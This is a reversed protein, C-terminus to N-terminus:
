VIADQRYRRGIAAAQVRSLDFALVSPEAPWGLGRGTGEIFDIGACQLERRLTRDRLRNEGPSTVTSFPSCATIFACSPARLRALLRDVALSRHGVRITVSFGGGRVVYDTAIFANILTSNM